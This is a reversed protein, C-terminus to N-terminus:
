LRTSIDKLYKLCFALERKVTREDFPDVQELESLREIVMNINNKLVESKPMLEQTPQKRVRQRVIKSEEGESSVADTEVLPSKTAKVKKVKTAM